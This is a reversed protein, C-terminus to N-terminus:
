LNKTRTMSRTLIRDRKFKPSKPRLIKQEIATKPGSLNSKSGYVDIDHDYEENLQDLGSYSSSSGYVDIGHNDCEENLQNKNLGSYRPAPPASQIPPQHNFHEVPQPTGIDSPAYFPLYSPSYYQSSSGYSPSKSPNYFIICRCFDDRVDVCGRLSEPSGTFAGSIGVCMGCGSHSYKSAKCIPCDSTLRTPKNCRGCARAEDEELSELRKKLAEINIPGGYGGFRCKSCFHKGTVDNAGTILTIRFLCNPGLHKGEYFQSCDFIGGDSCKFELADDDVKGCLGCKYNM